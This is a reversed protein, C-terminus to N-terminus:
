RARGAIGTDVKLGCETLLRAVIVATRHEEFAIEPPGHIDKRISILESHNAAVNPIIKM